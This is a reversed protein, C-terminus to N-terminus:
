VDEAIEKFLNLIDDIHVYVDPLDLGDDESILLCGRVARVPNHCTTCHIIAPRQNSKLQPWVLQDVIEFLVFDSRLVKRVDLDQNKCWTYYLDSLLDGDAFGYKRYVDNAVFLVEQDLVNDEPWLVLKEWNNM